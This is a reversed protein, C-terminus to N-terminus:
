QKARLSVEGGQFSQVGESTKLLLAGSEDVGLCLGEVSQEGKLIRVEKNQFLHSQHWEDIFGSFGEISFRELYDTLSDVLLALLATRDIPQEIQDRLDAWPQDILDSTEEPMRVNLGVGVVSTCDGSLDGFVEILIGALKREHLLLDNPWKLGLSSVGQRELATKIALGVVLSLGELSAVGGSFPWSVSFYLNAAFPSEWTRGRRGRGGTQYEAAFLGSHIGAAMARQANLNTSDTELDVQIHKLALKRDKDASLRDLLESLRESDLLSLGGPIKYGRGRISHLPVGREELLQAQKWVTTRSVGLHSALENGSHFQGDALLQLLQANM